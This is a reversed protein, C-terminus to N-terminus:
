LDLDDPLFRHDARPKSRTNSRVATNHKGGSLTNNVARAEGKIMGLVSIVRSCEVFSSSNTNSQKQM